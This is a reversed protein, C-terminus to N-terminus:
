HCVGGGVGLLRVATCILHNSRMGAWVENLEKEHDEMATGQSLARVFCIAVVVAAPKCTQQFTAAGSFFPCVGSADHMM